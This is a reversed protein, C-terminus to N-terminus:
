GTSIWATGQFIRVKANAEILSSPFLLRAMGSMSGAKATSLILFCLKLGSVM